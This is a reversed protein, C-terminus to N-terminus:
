VLVEVNGMGLYFVRGYIVLEILLIGFVWVDFKIIFKNFLVVELVIWKIFFKVGVRVNYEGEDIIRLFGFDCIKVVNKKGVLINRVVLDRYIYNNIELYVM